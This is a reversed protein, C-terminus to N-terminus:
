YYKSTPEALMFPIAIIALMIIITYLWPIYNYNYLFSVIVFLIIHLLTYKKSLFIKKM